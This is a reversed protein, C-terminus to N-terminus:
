PDIERHPEGPQSPTGYDSAAILERTCDPCRWRGSIPLSDWGAALAEDLNAVDRKCGASCGIREANVAIM